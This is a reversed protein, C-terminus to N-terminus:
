FLKIYHPNKIKLNEIIRLNVKRDFKSLELCFVNGKEAKARVEFDIQNEQVSFYFNKKQLFNTPQPIVANTAEVIKQTGGVPLAPPKDESQKAIPASLKTSTAPRTLFKNKM